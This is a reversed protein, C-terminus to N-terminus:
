NVLKYFIHLLRLKFLVLRAKTRAPTKIKFIINFISKNLVKYKDYTSKDCKENLLVLDHIPIAQLNDIIRYYYDIEIEKFGNTYELLSKFAFIYDDILKISKSHLSSTQRQRYNYLPTNIFMIKKSNSVQKYVPVTDEVLRGVEFHMNYEKINKTLFLKNWLYGRVKEQLMMKMVEINSYVRDEDVDFTYCEKKDENYDYVKRYGCIVIDADNKEAKEYMKELMNADMYDDSDLFLTYKGKIKEIAVNRAESPGKNEQNIVEINNYLRQYKEIIELSNDTSGDNVIILEFENFTQSYLSNLMEDLYLGVNYVAMIISISINNM